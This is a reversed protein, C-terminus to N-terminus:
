KSCGRALKITLREYRAKKCCSFRGSHYLHSNRGETTATLTPNSDGSQIPCLAKYICTYDMPLISGEWPQSTPEIGMVQEM